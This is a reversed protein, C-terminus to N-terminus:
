HIIALRILIEPMHVYEANCPPLIQLYIPLQVHVHVTCGATGACTGNGAKVVEFVDPYEYTVVVNPARGKMRRSNTRTPLLVHVHCTIYKLMIDQAVAVSLVVDTCLMMCIDKYM